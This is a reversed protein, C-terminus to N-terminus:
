VNVPGRRDDVPHLVALRGVLDDRRLHVLAGRRARPRETRIRLVRDVGAAAARVIRRVEYTPSALSGRRPVLGRFRPGFGPFWSFAFGSSPTTKNKRTKTTKTHKPLSRPPLRAQGAVRARGRRHRM